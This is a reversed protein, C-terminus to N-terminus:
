AGDDREELKRLLSRIEDLESSSAPKSSLARQVLKAASGGFARDMLDGVLESQIEEEPQRASYVHALQSEDRSVLGKKSMLQLTKLVTTYGISSRLQEHVQRVTGPGRQWLVNLIALEAPTPRPPSAPM